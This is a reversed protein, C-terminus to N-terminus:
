VAARSPRYRTELAPPGFFLAIDERRRQGFLAHVREGKAAAPLEDGLVARENEGGYWTAGILQIGEKLNCAVFNESHRDQERWNPHM